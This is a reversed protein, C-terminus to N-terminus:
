PVVMTSPTLGLEGVSRLFQGSLADYIDIVNSGMYSTFLLPHADQSVTISGVKNRATIQQVKRHSTIDYVWIDTGPEKHSAVDGQHMVAYLRHSAQHLALHELGGSRWNMGHEAPSVLSWRSGLRAGTPGSEIPYVAGDFSVFLWTSGARVAKESVPDHLVDFFVKSHASALAHGADDLQVELLSGDSCVSFFTRAGTPYVLACGATDLEGLFRHSTVDVVSVSQAPTFNYLLMFREDDTLVAANIMPMISARKPPLAIEALPRLQDDYIALVDTREGRGGRSLYTEPSYIVDGARPVIVGNFGYGTSLMGLMRGDDGDLLFAKGDAMYPFAMDNVWVWHPAPHPLTESVLPENPLQGLAPASLSLAALAAALWRAVPSSAEFSEIPTSRSSAVRAHVRSADLIDPAACGDRTPM